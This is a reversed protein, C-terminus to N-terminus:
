ANREKKIDLLEFSRLKSKQVIVPRCFYMKKCSKKKKKQKQKKNKTKNKNKNKTKTKTKTKTQMELGLPSKPLFINRQSNEKVVLEVTVQVFAKVNEKRKNM